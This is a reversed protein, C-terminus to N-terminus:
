NQWEFKKKASLLVSGRSIVKGRAPAHAHLTVVSGVPNLGFTFLFYVRPHCPELTLLFPNPRPLPFSSSYFPSFLIYSTKLELALREPGSLHLTVSLHCSM